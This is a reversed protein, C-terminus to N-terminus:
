SDVEIGVTMVKFYVTVNVSRYLVIEMHTCKSSGGFCYNKLTLIEVIEISLNGTLLSAISVEDDVTSDNIVRSGTGTGVTRNGCGETVCSNGYVAALEQEGIGYTSCSCSIVLICVCEKRDNEVVTSVVSDSRVYKCVHGTSCVEVVYRTVCVELTAFGDPDIGVLVAVSDSRSCCVTDVLNASCLSSVILCTILLCSVVGYVSLNSEGINYEALDSPYIFECCVKKCLRCIAIHRENTPLIVTLTSDSSLVEIIIVYSRCTAITVYTRSISRKCSYCLSYFLLTSCLILGNDYHIGNCKAIDSM